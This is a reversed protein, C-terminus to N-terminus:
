LADAQKSAKYRNIDDGAAELIRDLRHIDDHEAHFAGWDLEELENWGEFQSFVGDDPFPVFMRRCLHEWRALADDDLGLEALLATGRAHARQTQANQATRPGWAAMVNTYANNALGRRDSDPYRTHLEDPGVVGEIVYRE